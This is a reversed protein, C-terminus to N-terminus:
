VLGPVFCRAAFVFLLTAISLFMVSDFRDTVGGHGPFISGYDKVGCDRKLASAALDGVQSILSAPVAIAVRLLYNVDSGFALDVVLSYLLFGVMAGVVGSVMGAVTKKPSLNPCLKKKGFLKGGFIAFTDTMWAAILILLYDYNAYDRVKVFSYFAFAPFMTAAVTALLGKASVKGFAFVGLCLMYFLYISCLIFVLTYVHATQPVVDPFMDKVRACLTILFCFAAAPLRVFWRKEGMCTAMEYGSIAALVGMAAVFVVTHSLYLVPLFIILCVIATIIRTKM